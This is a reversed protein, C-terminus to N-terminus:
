PQLSSARVRPAVAATRTARPSQRPLVKPYNGDLRLLIGTFVPGGPACSWPAGKVHKERNPDPADHVCFLVHPHERAAVGATEEQLAASVRTRM